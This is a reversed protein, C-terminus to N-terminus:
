TMSQNPTSENQKRKLRLLALGSLTTGVLGLILGAIAGAKGSGAGFAASYSTSLHAVSLVIGTLGLVLAVIATTPRSSANKSTRNQARWGIILSVLGAVVGALSKARGTTIGTAYSSTRGAKATKSNTSDMENEKQGIQPFAKETATFSFSVTLCASLIYPILKKM